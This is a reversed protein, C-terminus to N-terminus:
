KQFPLRWIKGDFESIWLADHAWALGSPRCLDELLYQGIIGGTRRDISVLKQDKMHWLREGDWTLGHTGDNRRGGPLPYRAVVKGNEPDVKLLLETESVPLQYRFWHWAIWLYSGDHAISSYFQSAPGERQRGKFVQKVRWTKTDISGFSEGYAGAIWLTGNAFTVAGPSEFAGSVERIIRFHEPDDNVTWNLTLPDLTAYRGAGLYITAWLKEGDYALGMVRQPLEPPLQAVLKLERVEPERVGAVSTNASSLLFMAALSLLLLQKMTKKELQNASVLAGDDNCEAPASWITSM